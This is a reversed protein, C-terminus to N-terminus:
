DGLGELEAIEDAQSEAMSAAMARVEAHAANEAAYEAMHIGGRHHDVLLDVYLEDAADGSSGILADLEDETAMGPMEDPDSVMGMWLMASTELDKAEEEGFTRLLQVMRGVEISQGQVISAAVTRLAPDVDPLDRFVFSMFVAQEHHLRMDQLFGTDVDSHREGSQEGVMWGIMGAIVAATVVLVVINLPHQWWPLVIDGDDDDDDDGDDGSGGRGAPPEAAAEGARRELEILQDFSLDDSRVTM